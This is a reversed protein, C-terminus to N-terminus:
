AGIKKFVKKVVNIINNLIFGFGYGIVCFTCSIEVYECLLDFNTAVYDHDLHFWQFYICAFIIVVAMTLIKVIAKAYKVMKEKM